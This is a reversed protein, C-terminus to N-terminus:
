NTGVNIAPGRSCFYTSRVVVDLTVFEWPIKYGDKMLYYNFYGTVGFVILVGLLQLLRLAILPWKSWPAPQKKLVM